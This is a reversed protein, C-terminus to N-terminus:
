EDLEELARSLESETLPTGHFKCDGKAFSEEVFSVGKGKVTHAIIVVPGGTMAEAKDLSDLIQKTDHGDIELVQWGFARWKEAIPELNLITDTCGSLQYRNVDVMATLNDIRYQSAFMAAEWVQGENMEGDGLIVYVRNAKGDLRFALSIGIGISLGQGLTGTSADVGPTKTMDPHGQLISGTKRLTWLVDVPFYGAHALAAYLIPSAHGKSLIFRDRGEWHPNRSDHRMQHFYLATLLDACSLSGGPHGSGATTTMILANRRLHRAIENLRRILEQSHPAAKEDFPVMTLEWHV